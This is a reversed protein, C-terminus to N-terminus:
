VCRSAYDIRLVNDRWSLGDSARTVLEVPCFTVYCQLVYKRTYQRRRLTVQSTMTDVVPSTVGPGYDVGVVM